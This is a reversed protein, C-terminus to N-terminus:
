AGYVAGVGVARLIEDEMAHMAASGDDTVDDYGPVCHMAGHVIYLLLEREPPHGRENAQRAAEDVCVVIDADIRGAREGEPEGELLDFTLVDTTEPISMTRAHLDAMEADRVVQVRVEGDVSFRRALEALSLRGHTLLWERAPTLSLHELGAIELAIV